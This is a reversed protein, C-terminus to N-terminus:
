ERFVKIDFAFHKQTPSYTKVEKLTLINIKFGLRRADEVLALKRENLEALELIKYYHLIGGNKISKLTQTYYDRASQPLDLILRDVSNIKKLTEEANGLLPKVREAKNIRVNEQLLAYANPNSDVAYVISPRRKKAIMIAYPGVGTFLDLVSEEPEVQEAIRIRETALRPSFYAKSVDVIYKLGYERHITKTRNEGTLYKVKRIRYEGDIGEDAFVCRINKHAKLIGDGIARGHELLETPLRILVIDGIIDFATPLLPKLNEPIATVEGYDTVPRFLEKFDREEIQYGLDVNERIPIIVKDNERFITLHKTLLNRSILERRVEEAIQKPVVICLNRM